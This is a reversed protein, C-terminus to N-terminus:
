VKPIVRTHSLHDHLCLRHEGDFVVSLLAIVSIANFIITFTHYFSSYSSFWLRYIIYRINGSPIYFAGELIYCGVLRVLLARGTLESMDGEIELHLMHMMITQKKFVMLPVVVYYVYSVVLSCVLLALYIGDENSLLLSLGDASWNVLLSSLYWDLAFALLRRVYYEYYSM